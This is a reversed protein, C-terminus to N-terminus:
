VVNKLHSQSPGSMNNLLMCRLRIPMVRQFPILFKFTPGDPTRRGWTKSLSFSLHLAFYDRLILGLIDSCCIAYIKLTSSYALCSVLMFSTKVQQRSWSPKKSPKNKLGSSPPSMNKRFSLQKLPSCPKVDSFIAIIVVETIVEFGAYDSSIQFCFESSLAQIQSPTLNPASLPM